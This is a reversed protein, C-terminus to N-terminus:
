ATAVRAKRQWALLAFGVALCGFFVPDHLLRDGVAGQITQLWPVVPALWSGDAAPAADFGSSIAGPIFAAGFGATTATIGTAIYGGVMGLIGLGGVAMAAIRGIGFRQQQYVTAGADDVGAMEIANGRVTAAELVAVPGLAIACVVLALGVWRVM